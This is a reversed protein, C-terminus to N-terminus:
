LSNYFQFLQKLDNDKDLDYKKKKIELEVEEKKDSLIKLINKKNPKFGILDENLIYFYHENKVYKAPSTMKQTLPNFVGSKISVDFYKYCKIKEGNFIEQYLSGNIVKYTNNILKIRDFNEINFLYLSDKSVKSELTRQQINYNLNYLKINIKNTLEIEFLQEWNSFLYVSGEISDDPKASPVWMGSKASSGVINQFDDEIKESKQAQFSNTIFLVILFILKKM